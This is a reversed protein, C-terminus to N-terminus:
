QEDKLIALLIWLLKQGDILLQQCEKVQMLTVVDPHASRNRYNECIYGLALILKERNEKRKKKSPLFRWIRPQDAKDRGILIEIDQFLGLISMDLVAPGNWADFRDGKLAEICPRLTQTKRPQGKEFYYSQTEADMGEYAQVDFRSYVHVMVLELAKTMSILAASYDLTDDDRAEMMNFVMTSTVLYNHVDARVKEPLKQMLDVQGQLYKEEFDQRLATIKREAEPRMSSGMTLSALDDAIASIDKLLDEQEGETADEPLALKLARVRALNSTVEARQLKFLHNQLHLDINRLPELQATRVYYMKAEDILGWYGQGQHTLKQSLANPLKDYNDYSPLNLWGLHVGTPHSFARVHKCVTNFKVVPLLEGKELIDRCERFYADSRGDGFLIQFWSIQDEGLTHENAELIYQRADRLFNLMDYSLERVTKREREIRGLEYCFLGYLANAMDSHSSELVSRTLLIPYHPKSREESSLEGYHRLLFRASKEKEGGCFLAYPVHLLLFDYTNPNQVAKLEQGGQDLVDAWFGYLRCHKRSYEQIRANTYRYKSVSGKGIAEYYFEKSLYGPDTAGDLGFFPFERYFLALLYDGYTRVSSAMSSLLNQEPQEWPAEALVPMVYRELIRYCLDIDGNLEAVKVFPVLMNPIAHDRDFDTFQPLPCRTFPYNHKATLEESEANDAMIEACVQAYATEEGRRVQAVLADIHSECLQDETYELQYVQKMLTAVMAYYFDRGGGWLKLKEPYVHYLDADEPIPESFENRSQVERAFDLCLQALHYGERIEVQSIQDYIAALDYKDHLKMAGYVFEMVAIYQHQRILDKCFAKFGNKQRATVYRSTKRKFFKSFLRESNFRPNEGGMYKGFLKCFSDMGPFGPHILQLDYM